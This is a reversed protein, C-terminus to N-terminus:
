QPQLVEFHDNVFNFQIYVISATKIDQYVIVFGLVNHYKIIKLVGKSISVIALM